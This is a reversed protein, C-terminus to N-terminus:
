FTEYVLYTPVIAHLHLYPSLLVLFNFVFFVLVFSFVSFLLCLLRCVHVLDLDTVPSVDQYYENLLTENGCIKPFGIKNKM